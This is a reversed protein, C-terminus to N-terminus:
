VEEAVAAAGRHSALEAHREQTLQREHTGDALGAIAAHRDDRGLRRMRDRAGIALDRLAHEHTEVLGCSTVGLRRTGGPEVDKPLRDSRQRRRTRRACPTCSCSRWASRSPPTPSTSCPGTSAATTCTCSTSSRATA